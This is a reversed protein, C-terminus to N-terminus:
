RNCYPLSAVYVKGCGFHEGYNASRRRGVCAVNLAWGLYQALSVEIMLQDVQSTLLPSVEEDEFSPSACKKAFDRLEDITVSARVNKQVEVSQLRKILSKLQRYDIYHTEWGRVRSGTLQVEFNVM